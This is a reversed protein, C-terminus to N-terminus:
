GLWDWSDISIDNPSQEAYREARAKPDYGIRELTRFNDLADTFARMHQGEEKLAEEKYQQTDSEELLADVCEEATERPPYFREGQTAWTWCLYDLAEDPTINTDENPDIM